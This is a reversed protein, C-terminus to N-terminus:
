LIKRDKRKEGGNGDKRKRRSGEGKFFCFREVREIKKNEGGERGKQKLGGRRIRRSKKSHLKRGGLGRWGWFFLFLCIFM